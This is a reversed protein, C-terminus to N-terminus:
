VNVWLGVMLQGELPHRWSAPTSANTEQLFLDEGEGGGFFVGILILSDMKYETLNFKFKTM